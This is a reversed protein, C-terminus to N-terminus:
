ILQAQMLMGALPNGIDHVIKATIAGVDALRERQQALRELEILQTQARRRETVDRIIASYIVQRGVRAESVSLEIPFVEGNKRRAEVERVRGIAKPVGTTRYTEIYQDHEDSYPPPMLLKVNKGIVEAGLYGFIEEAAHNFLTVIGRRDVSIIADRATALVAQWRAENLELTRLAESASSRSPRSSM